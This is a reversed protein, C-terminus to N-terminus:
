VINAELFHALSGYKQKIAELSDDVIKQGDRLFIIHETLYEIEELDHSVIVITIGHEKAYDKIFTKIKTRIKIDLGTSLEDLFIVKPNHILALMTNLRQAEGGSLRAANKKLFRKIGFIDILENIESEKRKINYLKVVFKIIDNASLNNPYSSSQFQVGIQNKYNETGLYYKVQGSTAKNLGCLIEILTTKGAGNAGLIATCKNEYIKFSVDNLAQKHNRKFLGYNFVKSLHDVEILCRNSDSSQPTSLTDVNQTPKIDYNM